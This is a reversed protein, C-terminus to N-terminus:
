WDDSDPVSVSLQDALMLLRTRQAGAMAKRWLHNWPSQGVLERTLLDALEIVPLGALQDYADGAGRDPHPILRSVAHAIPDRIGNGRPSAAYILWSVFAQATLGNDLLLTQNKASIKNRILLENLDWDLGVVGQGDRGPIGNLESGDGADTTTLTNKEHKLGLALTNLSHWDRWDLTDSAGHRHMDPVGPTTGIAGHKHTDSAGNHTDSVGPAHIVHAGNHIDSAGISEASNEGRHTDIAGVTNATASRHIGSAGIPDDGTQVSHTDSVGKMRIAIMQNAKAQDEDTMPEGLCVKFRRPADEWAGDDRGIEKVFNAIESNKLWEWVTKVRKLGLWRAVEAYGGPLTVEDRLEGTRLNIYGRDRLLTIFWGPGSGLRPLWHTVFYHTLFVLDKPPMLHQALRDALDQFQARQSEPISGCVAQLVDQVSHTESGFESESSVKEPFPILEDVPTDLATQLVELPTKGEALQIYLWARLSCEDFSTM